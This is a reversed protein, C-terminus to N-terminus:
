QKTTIYNDTKRMETNQKQSVIITMFNQLIEYFKMFITCIKMFFRLKKQGKQSLIMFLISIKQSATRILTCTHNPPGPVRLEFKTTQEFLM